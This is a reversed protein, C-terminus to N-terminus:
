KLNFWNGLEWCFTFLGYFVCRLLLQTSDCCPCTIVDITFHPTFNSVWEWVEVMAGGNPQSLTLLDLKMGCKVPYTIVKGDQTGPPKNVPLYLNTLYYCKWQFILVICKNLRRVNFLVYVDGYSINQWRFDVSACETHFINAQCKQDYRKTFTYLPFSTLFTNM